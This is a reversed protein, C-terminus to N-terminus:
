TTVLTLTVDGSALTFLEDLQPARLASGDALAVATATIEHGPVSLLPTLLRREDVAQGIEFGDLYELLNTRMQEVGTSPFEDFIRFSVTVALPVRRVRRFRITQTEGPSIEVNEAVNGATAIGVPKVAAIAAAIDSAAGGDTVTMVSRAAIQIGQVTIAAATTNDRTICQTVGSVALVRARIADLSGRAHVAVEGRYRERYESDSEVARGPMAAAANTASTWGPIVDVIETLQGAEAQIHGVEESRFLQDVSGDSPIVADATSVFVANEMTRVRSGAPVITGSTGALTVTVSSREGPIREIGFLAGIDDLQRGAATDPSLGNAVYVGLEDTEAFVLALIGILQGQPTESDLNITSGFTDRFLQELLEVYGTLDRPAIGANNITAM